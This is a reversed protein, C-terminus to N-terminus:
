NLASRGLGYTGVFEHTMHTCNHFTIKSWEYVTDEGYVAYPKLPTDFSDLGDYHGPAASTIYWPSKPNNLGAPDIVENDLPGNRGLLPNMIDDDEGGLKSAVNITARGPKM